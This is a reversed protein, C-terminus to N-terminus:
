PGSTALEARQLARLAAEPRPGDLGALKAARRVDREGAVGRPRLETWLRGADTRVPEPEAELLAAVPAPVDGRARRERKQREFDTHLDALDRRGEADLKDLLAPPLGRLHLPLNKEDAMPSRSLPLPIVHQVARPERSPPCSARLR